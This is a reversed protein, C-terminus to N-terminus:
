SRVRAVARQEIGGRANVFIDADWESSLKIGRDISFDKWPEITALNGAQDDPSGSTAARVDWLCWLACFTSAAKRLLSIACTRAM